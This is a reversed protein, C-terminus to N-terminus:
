EFPAQGSVFLFGLLACGMLCAAALGVILWSVIRPARSADM